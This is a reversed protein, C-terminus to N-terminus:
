RSMASATGCSRRLLRDGAQAAERLAGDAQPTGIRLLAEVVTNRSRGAAEQTRLAGPARCSPWRRSRGARQRGHRAGDADRARARSGERAARVRRPHPGADPRGASRARRRARRRRRPAARRHRGCSRTSPAPPAPTTSTRRAGLRGRAGRPSRGQRLMPQLLPVAEPVGIRGLLRAANRQVFWRPDGVLPAIRGFPPTGFGVIEGAARESAPSDEEAM